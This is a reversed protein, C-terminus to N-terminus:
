TSKKGQVQIVQIIFGEAALLPTKFIIKESPWAIRVM